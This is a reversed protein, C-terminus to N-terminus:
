SRNKSAIKSSHFSDAIAKTFSGLTIPKEVFTVVGLAICKAVDEKPSDATTMGVVHLHALRRDGRIKGLLQLSNQNSPKLDLFVSVLEDAANTPDNLYNWVAEADTVIKVQRKMKDQLLAHLAYREADSGNEFILVQTKTAM